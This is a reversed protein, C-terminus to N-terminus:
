LRIKKENNVAKEVTKEFDKDRKNVLGKRKTQAREEEQIKQEKIFSRNVLNKQKTKKKKRIWKINQCNIFGFKVFGHFTGFEM